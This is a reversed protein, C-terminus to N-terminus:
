FFGETIYGRKVQTYPVDDTKFKTTYLAEIHPTDLFNPSYYWFVFLLSYVFLNIKKAKLVIAM